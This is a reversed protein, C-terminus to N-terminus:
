RADPVEEPPPWTHRPPAARIPHQDVRRPRTDSQERRDADQAVIKLLRFFDDAPFRGIRGAGFEV